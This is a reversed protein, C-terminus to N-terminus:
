QIKMGKLEEILEADFVRVRKLLYLTSLSQVRVIITNEGQRLQNSMVLYTPLFRDGSITLESMFPVDNVLVTITTAQDSTVADSFKIAHVLELYKPTVENLIFTLKIESEFPEFFQHCAQSNLFNIKTYAVDRMNTQIVSSSFDAIYQGDDFSETKEKVFTVWPSFPKGGYIWGEIGQPLRIKYDSYSRELIPFSEGRKITEVIEGDISLENYVPVYDDLVYLNEGEEKVRLFSAKTQVWGSRGDPLQILYFGVKTNIVPYILGSYAIGITRAEPDLSQKVTISRQHSIIVQDAYLSGILVFLILGFYRM